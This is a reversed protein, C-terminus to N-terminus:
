EHLNIEKCEYGKRPNMRNREKELTKQPSASGIKKWERYGALEWNGSFDNETCSHKGAKDEM